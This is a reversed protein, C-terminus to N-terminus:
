CKSKKKTKELIPFGEIMLQKEIELPEFIPQESTIVQQKIPPEKKIDNKEFEQKLLFMERYHHYKGLEAKLKRKFEHYVYSTESDPCADLMKKYYRAQEILSLFTKSQYIGSSKVYKYFGSKRDLLMDLFNNIEEKDNVINDKVLKFKEQLESNGFVPNVKNVYGKVPLSIFLSHIPKYVGINRIFEENSNYQNTFMDIDYLSNKGKKTEIIGKFKEVEIKKFSYSGEKNLRFDVIFQSTSYSPEYVLCFRKLKSPM